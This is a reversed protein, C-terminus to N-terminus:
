RVGLWFFSLGVVVWAAPPSVLSIGYGVMGVGGFVFVDRLDPIIRKIGRILDDKIGRSIM